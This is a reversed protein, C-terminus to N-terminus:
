ETHHKRYKNLAARPMRPRAVRHWRIELFLASLTCQPRHLLSNVASQGVEGGGLDLHTSCPSESRVLDIPLSTSPVLPLIWTWQFAEVYQQSTPGGLM